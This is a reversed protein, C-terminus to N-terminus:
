HTLTLSVSVSLCLSLSVYGSMCLSMALCVSLCLSLSRFVHGGAHDGRRALDELRRISFYVRHYVVRPRDWFLAAERRTLGRWLGVHGSAHDERRALDEVPTGREYSVGGGYSWWLVRPM